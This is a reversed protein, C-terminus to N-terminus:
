QKTLKIGTDPEQLSGDSNLTFMLDGSQGPPAHITVKDGNVDYACEETQGAFTVDAKTSSKFNISMSGIMSSGTYTGKVKQCGSILMLGCILMAAATRSTFYYRNFM